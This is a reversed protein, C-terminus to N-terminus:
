PSRIYVISHLTCVFVSGCSPDVTVCVECWSLFCFLFLLFGECFGLPVFQGASDNNNEWVVGAWKSGGGLSCSM